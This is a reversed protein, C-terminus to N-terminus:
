RKKRFIKMGIYFLPWIGFIVLIGLWFKLESPVPYNNMSPIITLVFLFFVISLFVAAVLILGLTLLINIVKEDRQDGDKSFSQRNM